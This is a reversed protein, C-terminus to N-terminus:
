VMKQKKRKYGILILTAVAAITDKIANWICLVKTDQKEPQTYTLSKGAIIKLM